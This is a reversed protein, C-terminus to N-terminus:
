RCRPWGGQRLSGHHAVIQRRRGRAPQHGPRVENVARRACGPCRPRRAGQPLMVDEMETASRTRNFPNVQRSNPASTGGAANAPAARPRYDGYADPHDHAGSETIALSVISATCSTSGCIGTTRASLAAWRGQPPLSSRPLRCPRGVPECAISRNGRAGLQRKRQELGEAGILRRCSPAAATTTDGSLVLIASGRFGQLSAFHSRSRISYRELNKSDGVTAHAVFCVLVCRKRVM